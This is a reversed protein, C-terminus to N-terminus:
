DIRRAAVEVMHRGDPTDVVRLAELPGEPLINYCAGRTMKGQPGEGSVQFQIYFRNGNQPVNVTFITSAPRGPALRGLAVAPAGRLVSGGASIMRVQTRGLGVRSSATVRLRLDAGRRIPDLARIRVDIPHQVSTASSPTALGTVALVAFGLSAISHWLPSRKV